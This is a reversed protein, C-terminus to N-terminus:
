KGAREVKEVLHRFFLLGDPADDQRLSLALREPHWQVGEVPLTEHEIAEIVRDDASWAVARLGNGLQKVAQHHASNVAFREGYLRAPFGDSAAVVEHLLYDKHAEWTPIHQTLTGGFFVNLLQEGRCIGFIPKKADVFSRVLRFEEEDRQEDPDEAGNREEGYRWTAIDDGGCLLLADFATEDMDPAYCACEAGCARLVDSYYQQESRGSILIKCM